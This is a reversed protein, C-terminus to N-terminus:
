SGITLLKSYDPMRKTYCRSRNGFNWFLVLEKWKTVTQNIIKSKVKEKLEKIVVDLQEKDKIPYIHKGHLFYEPRDLRICCDIRKKGSQTNSVHFHPKRGDDSSHVEITLKYDDTTYGTELLLLPNTQYM